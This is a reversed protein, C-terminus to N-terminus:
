EQKEADEMVWMDVDEDNIRCICGLKGQYNVLTTDKDDLPLNEPIQVLKFKDSRLHFSMLVYSWNKKSKARYYIVGSICVAQECPSQHGIDCEIDWWMNLSDELIFVKCCEKQYYRPLCLVKYQNKFPDYGFLFSCSTPLREIPLFVTKTSTTPNHIKFQNSGQFWFGILGRVYQFTARRVKGNGFVKEHYLQEENTIQRQLYTYSFISFTEHSSFARLTSQDTLCQTMRHFIFHPDRPRQTVISDNVIIFERIISAWRYSVCHFRALSKTPLKKLIELTIDLPLNIKESRKRAMIEHSM